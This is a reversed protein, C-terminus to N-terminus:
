FLLQTTSEITNSNKDTICLIYHKEKTLYDLVVLM